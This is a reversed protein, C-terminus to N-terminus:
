TVRRKIPRTGVRRQFGDGMRCQGILRSGGRGTIGFKREIRRDFIRRGHQVLKRIKGIMDELSKCLCIPREKGEKDIHTLAVFERFVRPVFHFIGEDACLVAFNHQRATLPKNEVKFELYVAVRKNILLIGDFPQPNMHRRGIDPLREWRCGTNDAAMRMAESTFTRENM